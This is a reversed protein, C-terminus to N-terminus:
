KRLKKLNGISEPLKTLKNYSLDLVKLNKLNGISNPISKLNNHSIELKELKTLNGTSQPIFGINNMDLYLSVLSKLSGIFEPLNVLSNRSLDLHTLSKLELLQDPFHSLNCKILKVHTLKQLKSISKPLDSIINGSLNLYILETLNEISEPLQEARNTTKLKEIRGNKLTFITSSLTNKGVTKEIDLLFKRDPELVNSFRKYKKKFEPFIQLTIRLFTPDQDYFTDPPNLEMLGYLFAKKNSSMSDFKIPDLENNRDVISNKGEM